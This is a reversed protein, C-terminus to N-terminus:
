LELYFWGYNDYVYQNFKSENDKIIINISGNIITVRETSDHAEVLVTFQEFPEGMDDDIIIISRRVEVISNIVSSRNFSAITSVVRYDEGEGAFVMTYASLLACIHYGLEHIMINNNHTSAKYHFSTIWLLPRHM